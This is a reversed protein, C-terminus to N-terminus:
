KGGRNEVFGLDIKLELEGKQTFCIVDLCKNVAINIM